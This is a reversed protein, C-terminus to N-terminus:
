QLLAAMMIWKELDQIAQNAAQLEPLKEFPRHTRRAEVEARSLEEVMVDVNRVMRRLDPNYPLLRIQEVLNRRYPDWELSNKIM